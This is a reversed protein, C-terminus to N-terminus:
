KQGTKLLMLEIKEFRSRLEEIESKLEASGTGVVLSFHGASNTNVSHLEEWLYSNLTTDSLIGIKLTLTANAIPSGKVDRAVAQYNFGNPTQGLSLYSYMCIILFFLLKKM